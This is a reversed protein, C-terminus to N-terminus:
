TRHSRAWLWRSPRTTPTTTRTRRSRARSRRGAVVPGCDIAWIRRTTARRPRAGGVTLPIFVRGNNPLAESLTLTVTVSSGETVPNPSVSLSVTPVTVDDDSIGVTVSTTSGATVGQPLTGLAVTFTEHDTDDDQNTTITGTVTTRGRRTRLRNGFDSTYDDAEATGGGVTLPIFVRGNNPLEESLTLTVTVSSGETVPNPSVSLSVTPTQGQAAFPFPSLTGLLLALAPLRSRTRRGAVASPEMYKLNGRPPAPPYGHRCRRGLPGGEPSAAQLRLGRGPPGGTCEFKQM